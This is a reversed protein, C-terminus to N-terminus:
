HAATVVTPLPPQSWAQTHPPKSCCSLAAYLQCIVPDQSQHLKLDETFQSDIATAALHDDLQDSQRSLADANRNETGKRYTITFDYEQFSLAWRALLCEIKQSSLWQLSAHDTLLSFKCGLLHHQFQTLAFIIALCERQIVSYNRESSSLTRSSYVVVHGGQELIAGIGTASADTQLVFQEASPGFHPYVLVPAETLKHKLQNFALHCSETWKFLAGKNTLQYLPAAIDAFKHIYHRYYSALGPFSRLNTVDIPTPWDCVASIKSSDAEMGKASFVHGLYKVQYVGINCKSGHLSLGASEIRNFVTNLHEKHEEISCSHILVDDLYTTVFSLDRFLTDMLRQFSAPAGSGTKISSQLLRNVEEIQIVQLDIFNLEVKRRMFMKADLLVHKVM